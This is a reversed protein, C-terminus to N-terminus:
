RIANLQPRAAQLWVISNGAPAGTLKLAYNAQQQAVASPLSTGM